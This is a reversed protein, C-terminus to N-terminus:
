EERKADPDGEAWTKRGHIVVPFLIPFLGLVIWGNLTEDGVGGFAWIAWPVTLLFHVFLLLFLRWFPTAPHRWPAFFRIAFLVWFFFLLGAIGPWLKGQVLFVASLVPVWLFGGTWGWTWGMKEGKREAMINIGDCLFKM